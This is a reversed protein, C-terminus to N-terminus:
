KFKNVVMEIADEIYAKAHDVFEGRPNESFSTVAKMLGANGEQILDLMPIGSSSHKEAISVVLALQSEILRRAASEQKEDWSGSGALQRFLAAEEDRTLPEISELERLYWTIPDDPGYHEM